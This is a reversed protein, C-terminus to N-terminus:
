FIVYFLLKKRELVCGPADPNAIRTLHTTYMMQKKRTKTTNFKNKIDNIFSGLKLTLYLYIEGAYTIAIASILIALMLIFMEM